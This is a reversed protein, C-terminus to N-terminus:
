GKKAWPPRREEAERERHTREEHRRRNEFESMEAVGWSEGVRSRYHRDRARAQYDVIEPPRLSPHRRGEEREYDYM